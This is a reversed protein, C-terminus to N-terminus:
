LIFPGLPYLGELDHQVVCVRGCFPFLHFEKWVGLLQTHFLRHPARLILPGLKRPTRGQILGLQLRAEQM